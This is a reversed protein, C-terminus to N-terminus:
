EELTFKSSTLLLDLLKFHNAFSIQLKTNQKHIM